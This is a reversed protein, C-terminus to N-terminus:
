RHPRHARVQSRAGGTTTSPARDRQDGQNDAEGTPVFANATFTSTSPDVSTITGAVAVVSGASQTGQDDGWHGQSDAQAGAVGAALPLAMVLAIVARKM